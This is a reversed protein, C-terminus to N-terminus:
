LANTAGIRSLTDAILHPMRPSSTHTSASVAWTACAVTRNFLVHDFEVAHTPVIQQSVPQDDPQIAGAVPQAIGGNVSSM